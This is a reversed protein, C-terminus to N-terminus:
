PMIVADAFPVVITAENQLSGSQPRPLAYSMNTLVHHDDKASSLVCEILYRM